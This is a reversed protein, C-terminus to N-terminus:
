QLLKVDKTRALTGPPRQSKVWEVVSAAVERASEGGSRWTEEDRFWPSVGGRMSLHAAQLDVVASDDDILAGLRPQPLPDARHVFRIM